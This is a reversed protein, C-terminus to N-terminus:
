GKKRDKINTVAEWFWKMKMEEIQAVFFILKYYCLLQLWHGLYYQFYVLQNRKNKHPRCEM